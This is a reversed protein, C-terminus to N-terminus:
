QRTSTQESFWAVLGWNLYENFVLQATPYGARATPTVWQDLSGLAADIESEFFATARDIFAHNLETFVVVQREAARMSRDRSEYPFNVHMQWESYEPTAIRRAAQNDGVLPSFVVKYGDDPTVGPFESNLWSLMEEVRAEDRYWRKLEDHYEAEQAMFQQFNSARAFETLDTTLDLLRNRSGDIRNFATHQGVSGTSDLHLAYANHKYEYYSGFGGGSGLRAGTLPV